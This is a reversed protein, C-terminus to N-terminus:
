AFQMMTHHPRYGEVNRPLTHDHQETGWVLSALVVLVLVLVLVRVLVLVLRQELLCSMSLM